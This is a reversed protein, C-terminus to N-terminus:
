DIFDILWDITGYAISHLIRFMSPFHYLFCTIKIDGDQRISNFYIYYCSSYTDYDDVTDSGVPLYATM